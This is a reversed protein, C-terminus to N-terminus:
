QQKILELFHTTVGLKRKLNWYGKSLDAKGTYDYAACFYKINTPVMRSYLLTVTHSNSKSKFDQCDLSLFVFLM